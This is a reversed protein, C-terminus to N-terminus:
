SLMMSYAIPPARRSFRHGRLREDAFRPFNHSQGGDVLVNIFFFPHAV